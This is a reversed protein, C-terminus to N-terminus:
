VEMVNWRGGHVLLSKAEWIGRWACSPNRGLTATLLNGDFFYRAVYMKHFLSKKKQLLRWAQKALLAMNFVELEKFGMGGVFKSSCLKKWSIWHVKREENKQGWWYRAMMGEIESYLKPPLKFCSMAYSPIAMAVAKLVVERGGQSFM